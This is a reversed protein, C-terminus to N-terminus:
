GQTGKSPPLRQDTPPNVEEFDGDIIDDPRTTAQQFQFGMAGLRQGLLHVVVSQVPPVLLLLGLVTTLFGPAILLIGALMAFGRGAMDRLPGNTVVRGPLAARRLVLMGLAASGLVVGLTLWLGMAGGLVVFLAIEILPIALFLLVLPM